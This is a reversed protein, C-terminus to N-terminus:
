VTQRDRPRVTSAPRRALLPPLVASALVGLYCALEFSEEVTNKVHRLIDVDGPLHGDEDFLPAVADTWLPVDFVHKWLGKYGLAQAFLVAFAVSVAFLPCEPGAAFDALDRFSAAPRRLLVALFAAFVAAIVPIWAGHFFAQDLFGDLERVTMALVLLSCHVFARAPGREPANAARARLAYALSALALLTIQALEVPGNEVVNGNRGVEFLVLLAAGAVLAAFVAAA